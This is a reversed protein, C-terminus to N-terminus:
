LRNDMTFSGTIYVNKVKKKDKPFMEEASKNFYVVDNLQYLGDDQM